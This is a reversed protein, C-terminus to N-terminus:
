QGGTADYHDHTILVADITIGHKPFLIAAKAMASPGCDMLIGKNSGDDFSVKIACSTYSRIDRADKVEFASLCSPCAQDLNSTCSLLPGGSADGTGLFLIELSTISAMHSFVLYHNLSLATSFPQADM